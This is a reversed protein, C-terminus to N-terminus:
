GRAHREALQAVADAAGPRGLTSAAAAMAALASRDAALRDLEAELRGADLEADPVVVAAGADALRRANATQHDGPAGPLPVLVAPVGAVTLEAVTSAGARHVAIDTAAYVVEMRDEFRVQEYRLGGPVPEPAEAQMQEWDREGVVHRVAWGSRGAWDAALAVVADNIRRAGLSGGAVAVMVADPDVGLEARAQARGAPSRDVALMERRVPNGTVEARPLATGPFSVAAARAVRAAMRNALGPVANQEAVVLPVRWVAAAVVCAVSAYGGVTVVVAPRRRGVLVVAMVVAALLGAIAGINAPTLRRAVGRGPLLTLSFGAAPVMRREMGRSSGVYHISEAPHGRAVLAQGIAIAPLVHGGTGGGAIM